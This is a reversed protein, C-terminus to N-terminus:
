GYSASVQTTQSSQYLTIGDVIHSYYLLMVVLIINLNDWISRLCYKLHSETVRQYLYNKRLSSANKMMRM